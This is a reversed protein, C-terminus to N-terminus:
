FSEVCENLKAKLEDIIAENQEALQAQYDKDSFLKEDLTRVDAGGSKTSKINNRTITLRREVDKKKEEAIKTKDIADKIAEADPSILKVDWQSEFLKDRIKKVILEADSIDSPSNLFSATAVRAKACYMAKSARFYNAAQVELQYRQSYMSSGAALGAGGYLAGSKDFIGGLVGIIGGLVTADSSAYSQQKLSVATKKYGEEYLAINRMLGDHNTAPELGGDFMNPQNKVTEIKGASNRIRINESPEKIPLPYNMCGSLLLSAMVALCIFIRINM